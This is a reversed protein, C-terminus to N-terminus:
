RRGRNSSLRYKKNVIPKSHTPKLWVLVASSADTATIFSRLQVMMYTNVM